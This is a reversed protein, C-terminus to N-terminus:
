RQAKRPVRQGSDPAANAIVLAQGLAADDLAHPRLVAHDALATRGALEAGEQGPRLAAWQEAVAVNDLFQRASEKWGFNLAHARPRGRPIDLALRCARGLDADLVGAGSDGVLDLPGPVPYAAVPLGSAMAELLVMGFTDTLSPFVFVDASAYTEALAEGIRTGLFRAEPYASELAARAPGDGVLVKTGALDLDLFAELNKEVALRGVYLFIPRPHDLVSRPRARFRVHDVGRSWLMLREFGRDALKGELRATSVMIGSGANHFWRLLRYTWEKPIPLRASIYDPFNTHYSTSFARGRDLCYRRAAFGLPGETAIHVHDVQATEIRRGVMGATAFALRIEPYFPLGLTRFGEPTL